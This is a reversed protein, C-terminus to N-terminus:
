YLLHHLALAVRPIEDWKFHMLLLSFLCLLAANKM